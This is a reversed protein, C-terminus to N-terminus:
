TYISDFTFVMSSKGNNEVHRYRYHRRLQDYNIVGVNNISLFHFLTNERIGFQFSGVPASPSMPSYFCRKVNEEGAVVVDGYRARWVFTM